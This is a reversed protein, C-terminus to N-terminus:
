NKAQEGGVNSAKLIEAFLQGIVEFPLRSINASRDAGFPLPNGDVDLFNEWGSLAYGLAARMAAAGFKMSKNEIDPKAESNVESLEIGTLGRIQFRTPEGEQGEPTFWFPAFPSAARLAM